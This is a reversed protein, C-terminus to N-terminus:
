AGRRQQSRDLAFQRAGHRGLTRTVPEHEVVWVADRDRLVAKGKDRHNRAVTVVGRGAEVAVRGTEANVEADVAGGVLRQEARGWALCGPMLHDVGAEVVGRGVQNHRM